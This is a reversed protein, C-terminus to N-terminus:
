ADSSGETRFLRAARTMAEQTALLYVVDGALLLTQASPNNNIEEGRRIGAATVGHEKRLAAEAITRGALPSGEEVTYAQLQLDPLSEMISGGMDLRRQMGYNEKRIAFVYEDITQRPVLYHNLVRAFVELSTEFEEPIVENAGM